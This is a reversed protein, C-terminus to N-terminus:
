EWNLKHIHLSQRVEIESFWKQRVGVQELYDQLSLHVLRVAKLDADITVLGATSELIKGKECMANADSNPNGTEVALLCQLEQLSLTRRACSIHALTRMGRIRAGLDPSAEIREMAEGYLIDLEKPFSGLTEQIESLSGKTKFSDMYLKAILIRGKAKEIMVAPIGEWFEPNERVKIALSTSEPPHKCTREDWLGIGHDLEKKIYWDVYRKIEEPPTIINVEIRRGYPEQLDHSLEKCNNRGNNKCNQCMDSDCIKCYFYIKNHISHCHDCDAVWDQVEYDLRKSTFMLSLQEPCLRCLSSVLEQRHSYEDLADVVLFVRVYKKIEAQLLKRIDDLKPPKVKDFKTADRYADRLDTSLSNVDSLQILQKLVSGLLNEQTQNTSDNHDLYICIVPISKDTFEDPLYSVVLSSLM